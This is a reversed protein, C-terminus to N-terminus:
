LDSKIIWIGFMEKKGNRRYIRIEGIFFSKKTDAIRDLRKPEDIAIGIYQMAEKSQSKWYEKIPKLKCDRQVDCHGSMVFGKKMGVSKGCVTKHHFCDMYNKESKLVTVKYGWSEFIPIAKNYIFDRHEPLEGSIEKDFMVECYVIEDLPENHERALLITAISDKGFSCSAIYKMIDLVKRGNIFEGFVEFDIM